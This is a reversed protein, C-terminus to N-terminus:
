FKKPVLARVDSPEIFIRPTLRPLGLGSLALFIRPGRLLAQHLIRRPGTMGQGARDRAQEGSYHSEYGRFDSGLSGLYRSLVTAGPSFLPPGDHWAVGHRVM